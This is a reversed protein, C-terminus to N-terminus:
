NEKTLDLIFKYSRINDPKNNYTFGWGYQLKCIFYIGSQMNDKIWKIMERKTKM